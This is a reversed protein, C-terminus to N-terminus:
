RIRPPRQQAGGPDARGKGALNAGEERGERIELPANQRICLPSTGSRKPEERPTVAFGGAGCSPALKEALFPTYTAEGNGKM